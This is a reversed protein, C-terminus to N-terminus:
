YEHVKNAAKWRPPLGGLKARHAIFYILIDKNQEKGFLRKFLFDNKPDLFRSFAM